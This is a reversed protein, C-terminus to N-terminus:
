NTYVAVGLVRSAGNVWLEVYDWVSPLVKTNVAMVFRENFGDVLTPAAVMLYDQYSTGTTSYKRAVLQVNNGPNPSFDFFFRNFLATSIDTGTVLPCIVTAGGPPSAACASAPVARAAGAAALTPRAVIFASLASGMFVLGLAASRLVRRRLNM